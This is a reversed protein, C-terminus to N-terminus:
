RVLNHDIPGPVLIAVRVGRRAAGTLTERMKDDPVFYPNTIYVSRRASAIALLFLTYM